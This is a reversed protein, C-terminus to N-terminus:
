TREDFDYFSWSASFIIGDLPYDVVLSLQLSICTIIDNRDVALGYQLREIGDAFDEFPKMM